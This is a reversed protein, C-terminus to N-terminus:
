VTQLWDKAEDLDNFLKVTFKGYITTQTIYRNLSAAGFANESLIFAEHTVGAEVYLPNIEATVWELDKHNIVGLMRTDALMPLKPYNPREQKLIDVLKLIANRFDKSPLFGSWKNVLCPIKEDIYFCVNATEYLIKSM